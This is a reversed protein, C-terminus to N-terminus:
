GEEGHGFLVDRAHGQVARGSDSDETGQGPVTSPPIRTVIEDRKAHHPNM